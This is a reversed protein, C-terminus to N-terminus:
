FRRFLGIVKGLIEAQQVIIPQMTSNAPELRYHGAEKFFYKVTATDEILIVAIEGNRVTSTKEVIIYDGDLIGAEIMSEGSVTLMFVEKNTHLFDMPVPFYDEINEQALIPLGATITGVIPIPAMEKNLHNASADSIVEIARPKSPDRRIYGKEELVVMHSHVTSPSQLGIAEAIERVTPPYGKTTIEQKIFDLLAAQRKTLDIYEM